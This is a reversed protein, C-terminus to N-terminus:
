IDMVKNIWQIRRWANTTEVRFVDGVALLLKVFQIVRNQDVKQVQDVDEDFAWLGRAALLFDRIHVGEKDVHVM